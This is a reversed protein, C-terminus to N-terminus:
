ISDYERNFLVPASRFGRVGQEGTFEDIKLSGDYLTVKFMGTSKGGNNNVTLQIVIPTGVKLDDPQLLNIPKILSKELQVLKNSLM